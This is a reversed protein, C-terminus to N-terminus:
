TTTCRPASGKVTVTRRSVVKKVLTVGGGGGEIRARAESASLRKSGVQATEELAACSASACQADLRIRAHLTANADLHTTSSHCRTRMQM